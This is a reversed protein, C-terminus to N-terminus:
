KQKKAQQYQIYTMRKRFAEIMERYYKKKAENPVLKVAEQETEVASPSPPQRTFASPAPRAQRQQELAM